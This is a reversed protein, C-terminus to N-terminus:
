STEALESMSNVDKVSNMLNSLDYKSEFENFKYEAERQDQKSVFPDFVTQQCKVRAAQIKNEIDDAITKLEAELDFKEILESFNKVDYKNNM